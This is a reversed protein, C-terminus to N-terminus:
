LQTKRPSDSCLGWAQTLVQNVLLVQFASKAMLLFFCHGLGAKSLCVIYQSISYPLFYFRAVSPLFIGAVSGLLYRSVAIAEWCLSHNSSSTLDESLHNQPPFHLSHCKMPYPVHPSIGPMSPLLFCFQLPPCFLPAFCDPPSHYHTQGPFGAIRHYSPCLYAPASDKTCLQYM